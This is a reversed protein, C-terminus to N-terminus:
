LTIPYLCKVGNSDCVVVMQSPKGLLRKEITYSDGSGALTGGRILKVNNEEDFSCHHDHGFLVAEPFMGLMASLQNIGSKSFSDFDGHVAIYSKDRIVINAIGTDLNNNEIWYFNSIHSLSNAVVWSILCDLREDHLADDKKDMRTHNGAVDYMKVSSFINTLEYCFSTILESAIKIQDIVNERNTVQISKHINGSIMDGGLVIIANQSNHMNRINIVENLLKNIRVKAIDTNYKGWVSDFTQGIHWDTLMILLDNDSTRSVDGCDKFNVSGLEKLSSELYDLKQEVRADIYNQKNWANREDRYKIKERELERKLRKIEEIQNDTTTFRSQNATLMKQFAQYQKRYKSETYENGLLENLIDAVAQWSGIQEKASCVRYILEEDSENEFRKYESM